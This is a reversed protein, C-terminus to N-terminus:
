LCQKSSDLRTIHEQNLLHYLLEKFGTVYCLTLFNPIKDTMDDPLTKLEVLLICVDLSEHEAVAVSEGMINYLGTEEFYKIFYKLSKIVDRTMKFGGVMNLKIFIIRSVKGSVAQQVNGYSEHEIVLHLFHLSYWLAM